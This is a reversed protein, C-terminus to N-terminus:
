CVEPHKLARLEKEYETMYGEEEADVFPSLHPPLTAGAVYRTTPLLMQNNVSDFVWQPQVYERNEIKNQITPRYRHIVTRVSIGIWLSMPSVLILMLILVVRERGLSKVM